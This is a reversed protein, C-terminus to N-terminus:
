PQRQIAERRSRPKAPWASRLSMLSARDRALRAHVLQSAEDQIAYRGGNRVGATRTHRWVRGATGYGVALGTCSSCGRGCTSSPARWGRALSREFAFTRIPFRKTKLSIAGNDWLESLLSAMTGGGNPPAYEAGIQQPSARLPTRLTAFFGACLRTRWARTGGVKRLLANGAAASTRRSRECLEVSENVAVHAPVRELTLSLSGNSLSLLLGVDM